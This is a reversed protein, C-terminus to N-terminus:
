KIRHLISYEAGTSKLESRFLVIDKVDFEVPLKGKDIDLEPINVAKATARGITIHPHFRRMERKIGMRALESDVLRFMNEIKGEPDKTGVWIVKARDQSPFGGVGGVSIKAPLFTSCKEMVRVIDPVFSQDCWGIFKITIHLNDPRVWRVDKLFVSLKDIVSTAYRRAEDSLSIGIFIRIKQVPFEKM